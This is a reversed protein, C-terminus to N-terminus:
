LLKQVYGLAVELQEQQNLNSNDLVIADQAQRLPGEKRTSDLHDREQLNEAVAKEDVNPDTAKMELLRRQTRVEISATVFLKLEANPFVVTGVDRGDMVVGGEQGWLQQISVLKQRVEKIAAIKSVSQAIELTRIATSIDVGNLLVPRTETISDLEGFTITINPLSAILDTENFVGNKLIGNHLAYYCVARYMAGTDVFVYNLEKALTKALTSKGCSSFGDIAITLNKKM